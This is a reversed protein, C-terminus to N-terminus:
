LRQEISQMMKKHQPTSDKINNLKYSVSVYVTPYNYRNNFVMKVGNHKNYGKYASSFVNLGSLSINMKRDLLYLSVGFGLDYSPDLKSVANRQTGTYDFNIYGTFTRQKNFIFGTYLNGGWLYSTARREIGPILGKSVGYGFYIETSLELWSLADYYYLPRIGYEITNQANEMISYANGDVISSVSSIQNIKQNIFGSITFNGKYTYVLKYNYRTESKLDINGMSYSYMNIRWEFPNIQNFKPEISGSTLILSFRSNRNPSWSTIFDPLISTYTTKYNHLDISNLRRNTYSIQIGARLFLNSNIHWSTSIYPIVKIDDFKVKDEQSLIQDDFYISENERDNSTKTYYGKIGFDLNHQRNKGMLVSYDNAFTIGNMKLKQSSLYAMFPDSDLKELCDFSLNTKDQYNYYSIEFWGKFSESFAHESYTSFNIQPRRIHIKNIDFTQQGNNNEESFYNNDTIRINVNSNFGVYGNQNYQYQITAYAGGYNFKGKSPSYNLYTSNDEYIYESKESMYSYNHNFSPTIDIFLKNDNYVGSGFVAYRGNYGSGKMLEAGINGGAYKDFKSNMHLVILATVGDSDYKVPPSTIVDVTNILSADYGRLVDSLEEPNVRQLVNNVKLLIKEKGIVSIKNGKVQIQPLRGLLDLASNSSSTLQSVNVSFGDPMSKVKIPMGMVVVTQLEQVSPHLQCIGLDKTCGAELIFNYRLMEYGLCSIGLIQQGSPIRIIFDGEERSITNAIVNQTSMDDIVFISAGEIFKGSEDVVKGIVEGYNENAMINESYFIIFSIIFFVIKNM